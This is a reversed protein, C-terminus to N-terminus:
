KSGKKISAALFYRLENWCRRAVLAFALLPDSRRVGRPLLGQLNPLWVRPSWDTTPDWGKSIHRSLAEFSRPRGHLVMPPAFFVWPANLGIQVYPPLVGLRLASRALSETLSPEDALNKEGARTQEEQYLTLWHQFVRTLGESARFLMMGSGIRAHCDLGDHGGFRAGGWQACFDYFNLLGFLPTVDRLVYTDTDLFLTQKFPSCALYTPKSELSRIAPRVIVHVNDLGEIPGDTVVAIGLNPSVRRLSSVSVRLENLYKEGFAVYIVGRSSKADIEPTWPLDSTASM